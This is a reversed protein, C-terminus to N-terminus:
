FFISAASNPWPPKWPASSTPRAPSTPKARWARAAWAASRRPGSTPPTPNLDAIVINAGAGALGMAMEGALVGGGGVVVATKGALSFLDEILTHVEANSM